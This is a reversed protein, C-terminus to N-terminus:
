PVPSDLFAFTGTYIATDYITGKVEVNRNDRPALSTLIFDKVVRTADGFAFHTLEQTGVLSWDNDTGAWPDSALIAVNPTPGETCEVVSSVGGFEDRFVMVFPPTLIPDDWLLARDLTITLGDVAIVFGSQGWQPLSHSVATREGLIPILGEMETDFQVLRRNGQKRQWQLRAFEAAQRFDTCGFLVVKEPDASTTPWRVYAPAFSLPNRYEVEVGDNEGQCAFAYTLRFSERVMNQESFLMTRVNKRGDQVASMLAGLPLPAAAVVALADALAEWVTTKGTYIANFGYTHAGSSWFDKLTALRASDIESLPRRAGYDGNTLIDVFADAPSQTPVASGIGLPPLNRQLRVRIQNSASSAVATAHFRVALLTVPGYAIGSSPPDTIALRLGTWVWKNMEEGSPYQVTQRVMKVLWMASYGADCSYSKRLPDRGGNTESFNFTQETGIIANGNADAEVIEVTFDVSTAVVDNWDNLQFLGQAWNLDVYIQQGTQGAKGMRFYGATDNINVFEQEGVEASTLMNEFFPEVGSMVGSLNGLAQMHVSPPALVWEVATDVVDATDSDGVLVQTVTFDGAGLCLLMDLYEETGGSYFKYPQACIDPTHLVSGYPVPIPEGLRATNQSSRVSYVPSPESADAATFAPPKPKAFLLNLAMSAAALVASVALSILISTTFPEAPQVALIVVDDPALQHDLDDLPREGGNVYFRVAGGCGNPYNGQLWDLPTAGEALEFTQREHPALPNKVLTLSAM